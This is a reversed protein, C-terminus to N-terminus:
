LLVNNKHLVSYIYLINANLCIKLKHFVSQSFSPANFIDQILQCYFKYPNKGHSIVTYFENAAVAHCSGFCTTRDWTVSNYAM